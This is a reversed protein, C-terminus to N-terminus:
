ETESHCHEYKGRIREPHLSLWEVLYFGAQFIVYGTNTVIRITIFWALNTISSVLWDGNIVAEFAILWDILWDNSWEILWDILWDIM